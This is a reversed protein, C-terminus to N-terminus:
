WEPRRAASAPLRARARASRFVAMRRIRVIPSQNSAAQLQGRRDAFGGFMGHRAVGCAPPVHEAAGRQGDEQRCSTVPM